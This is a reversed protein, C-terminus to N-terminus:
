VFRLAGRRSCRCSPGAQPDHLKLPASKTELRQIWLVSVNAQKAVEGRTLGKNTRGEEIAVGLGRGYEQRYRRFAATVPTDREKECHSYSGFWLPPTQLPLRGAYKGRIVAMPSPRSPVGRDTVRSHQRWRQYARSVMWSAADKSSARLGHSSAWARALVQADISLAKAVDRFESEMLHSKGVIYRALCRETVDRLQESIEKHSIDGRLMEMQTLLHHRSDWKM